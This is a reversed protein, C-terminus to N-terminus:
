RAKNAMTDVMLINHITENIAAIAEFIKLFIAIVIKIKITPKIGKTFRISQMYRLTLDFDIRPM